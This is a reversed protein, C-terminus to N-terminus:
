VLVQKGSGPEVGADVSFLEADRGLHLELGLRRLLYRSLFM